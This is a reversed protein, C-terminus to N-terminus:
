LCDGIMLYEPKYDGTVEGGIVFCGMSAEPSLITMLTMVMMMVTLFFMSIMANM